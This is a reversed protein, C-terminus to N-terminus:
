DAVDIRTVPSTAICDLQKTMENTHVIALGQGIELVPAAVVLRGDHLPEEFTIAAGYMAFLANADEPPIAVGYLVGYVLLAGSKEIQRKGMLGPPECEYVAGSQTYFTIRGARKLEIKQVQM